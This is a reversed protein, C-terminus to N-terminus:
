GQLTCHASMISIIRKILIPFMLGKILSFLVETIVHAMHTSRTISSLTTYNIRNKLVKLAWREPLFIKVNLFLLIRMIQTIAEKLFKPNGYLNNFLARGLFIIIIDM